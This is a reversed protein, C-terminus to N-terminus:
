RLNGRQSEPVDQESGSMSRQLARVYAVIAWRDAEPIQKGYSPMNRIGNSIARYLYGDTVELLRPDALNPPPLYGKQVVIGNGIGTQGHCPTCYIKYREEGRNMLEATVAFPIKAVEATDSGGRWYSDDEKLLGRAVTGAPPHRMNRGDAYFDNKEYANLRGQNEMGHKWGWVPPQDSLQGRCGLTVALAAVSLLALSSKGSRSTFKRLSGRLSHL